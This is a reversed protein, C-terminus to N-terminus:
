QATGSVNFIGHPMTNICDHNHFVFSVVLIFVAYVGTQSTRRYTIVTSSGAELFFVYFHHRMAYLQIHFACRKAIGASLQHTKATCMRGSYAADTCIRARGACCFATLMFRLVTLFASFQAAPTCFSASVHVSSSRVQTLESTIVM